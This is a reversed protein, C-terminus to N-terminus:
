GTRRFDLSTGLVAEGVPASSLAIPLRECRSRKQGHFFKGNETDSKAYAERGGGCEAPTTASMM